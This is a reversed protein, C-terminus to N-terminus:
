FNIFEEGNMVAGPLVKLSAVVALPFLSACVNLMCKHLLRLM